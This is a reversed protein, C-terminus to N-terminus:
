FSEFLLLFFIKIQFRLFQKFSFIDIGDTSTRCWKFLLMTNNSLNNTTMSRLVKIEILNYKIMEKERGTRNKNFINKVEISTRIFFYIAYNRLFFLRVCFLLERVFYATYISIKILYSNQM